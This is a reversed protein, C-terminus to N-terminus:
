VNFLEISTRWSYHVRAKHFQLKTNLWHKKVSSHQKHFSCKHVSQWGQTTEPDRERKITIQHNTSSFVSHYRLLFKCSYFEFHTIFVDTLNPSSLFSTIKGFYYSYYAQSSCIAVATPQAVDQLLVHQKAWQGPVTFRSSNNGNFSELYGKHSCPVTFFETEFFLIRATANQLHAKCFVM